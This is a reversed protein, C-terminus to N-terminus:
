STFLKVLKLHKERFDRKLRVTLKENLILKGNQCYWEIHRDKLSTKFHLSHLLLTSKIKINLCGILLDMALQM